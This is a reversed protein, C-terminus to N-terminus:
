LGKGAALHLPTVDRENKVNIDAKNDLLMQVIELHGKQAANHLATFGGRGRANVNAKKKLLLKVVETHGDMAAHTLLTGGSSEEIDVDDNENIWCLVGKIDKLILAGYVDDPCKTAAESSMSFVALTLALPTLFKIPSRMM